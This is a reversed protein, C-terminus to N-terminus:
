LLLTCCSLQDLCLTHVVLTHLYHCTTCCYLGDTSTTYPLVTYSYIFRNIYLAIDTHTYTHLTQIHQACLLICDLHVLQTCYYLIDRCSNIYIFYLTRTHTGNIHTKYVSTCNMQVLQTCDYLINICSDRYIFHGHTQKHGM